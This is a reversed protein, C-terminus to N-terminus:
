YLNSWDIPAHWLTAFFLYLTGLIFLNNRIFLDKRLILGAVLATIVVTIDFYFMAIQDFIM